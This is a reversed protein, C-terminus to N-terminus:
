KVGLFWKLLKIDAETAKDFRWNDWADQIEEQLRERQQTQEEGVRTSSEDDPWMQLETM